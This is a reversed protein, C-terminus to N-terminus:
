ISANFFRMSNGCDSLRWVGEGCAYVHEYLYAYVVTYMHAALLFSELACVCVCLFIGRVQISM